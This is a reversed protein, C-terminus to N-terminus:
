QELAQIQTTISSQSYGLTVAARTFSKASASCAQPTAVFIKGDGSEGTRAAATLAEVVPPVFICLSPQCVTAPRPTM